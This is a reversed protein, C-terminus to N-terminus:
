NRNRQLFPPLDVTTTTEAQETEGFHLDCLADYADGLNLHRELLSNYQGQLIQHQQSVELLKFYLLTAAEAAYNLDSEFAQKVESPSFDQNFNPPLTNM